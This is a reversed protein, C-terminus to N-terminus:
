KNFAPRTHNKKYWTGFDKFFDDGFTEKYISIQDETTPFYSDINGYRNEITKVLKQMCDPGYTEMMYTVLLHGYAYHNDGSPGRDGDTVKTYINEANDPTIKDLNHIYDGSYSFDKRRKGVSEEYAHATYVALGETLTISFEGLNASFLVHTLEHAVEYYLNSEFDDSLTIVVCGAQANSVYGANDKIFYVKVKSSPSNYEEFPACGIYSYEVYPAFYPFGDGKGYIKLGTLEQEFEVMSDVIDCINAPVTVDKDLFIVSNKSEIYEYGSSTYSEGENGSVSAKSLPPIDIKPEFRLRYGESTAELLTIPYQTYSYSSMVYTGDGQREFDVFYENGQYGYIFNSSDNDPNIAFTRVYVRDAGYLKVTEQPGIFFEEGIEVYHESPETYDPEIETLTAETTVETESETTQAPTFTVSCGAAMLFTAAFLLACCNKIKKM